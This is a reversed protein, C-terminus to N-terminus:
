CGFASTIQFSIFVFICHNHILFAEAILLFGSFNLLSFVYILVGVRRGLVIMQVLIM